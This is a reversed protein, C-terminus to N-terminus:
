GQISYFDPYNRRCSRCPIEGPHQMSSSDYACGTCSNTPITKENLKNKFTAIMLTKWAVEPDKEVLKKFEQEILEEM